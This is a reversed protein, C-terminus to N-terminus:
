GRKKRLGPTVSQSDTPAAACDILAVARTIYTVYIVDSPSHPPPYPEPPRTSTSHLLSPIPSRVNGRGLWVRGM